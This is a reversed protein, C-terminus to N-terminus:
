KAQICTRKIALMNKSRVGIDVPGHRAIRTTCMNLMNNGNSARFPEFRSIRSFDVFPLLAQRTAAARWRCSARTFAVRYTKVPNADMSIHTHSLNTNRSM